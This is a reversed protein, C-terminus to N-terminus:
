RRPDVVGGGLSELMSERDILYGPPQAARTGGPHGLRMHEQGAGRKLFEINRPDGKWAPFDQVRNIHHGTYGLDGHSAGAQIREIEEPTWPRSGQGTSKILEAEQRWARDIATQRTGPLPPRPAEEMRYVIRNLADVRTAASAELLADAGQSGGAVAPVLGEETVILTQNSRTMASVAVVPRAPPAPKNLSVEAEATDTLLRGSTRVAGVALEGAGIATAAAPATVRETFGIAAGFQDGKAIREQAIDLETNVHQELHEKAQVLAKKPDSGAEVVTEGFGEWGRGLAMNLTGLATRGSWTLTGVLGGWARKEVGTLPVPQFPSCSSPGFYCGATGVEHGTPDVFYTPRDHAYVFRNLSPPDDVRGLNTDATIFRGTAPDYYRAGVYYLGTERDFYYGAYTFRNASADLPNRLAAAASGTPVLHAQLESDEAVLRDVLRHAAILEDHDYTERSGDAHIVERIEGDPFYSYRTTGERNTVTEVRGGEM